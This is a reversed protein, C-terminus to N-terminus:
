ESLLAQPEGVLLDLVSYRAIVLIFSPQSVFKLIIITYDITRATDVSVIVGTRRTLVKIESKAISSIYTDQNSIITRSFSHPTACSLYM